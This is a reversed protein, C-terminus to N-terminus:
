RLVLVELTRPGHVGAVRELEIDSTVSPGSVFTLPRQPDLWSLAEPLSAVVQDARLMCLRREPVLTAARRGQGPGGDLVPTGTVAIAVAATYASVAALLAAAPLLAGDARGPRGCQGVPVPAAGAGARRRRSGPM